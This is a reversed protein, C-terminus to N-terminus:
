RGRRWLSRIHRSAWWGGLAVSVLCGAVGGFFLIKVITFTTDGACDNECTGIAAWSLLMAVTVAASLLAFFCVFAVKILSGV